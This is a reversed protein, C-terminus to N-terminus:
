IHSDLEARHIRSRERFAPGVRLSRTVGSEWSIWHRRKWEIAAYRRFDHHVRSREASSLDTPLRSPAGSSDPLLELFLEGFTPGRGTRKRTQAIVVAAALGWEDATERGTFDEFADIWQPPPYGNSIRWWVATAPSIM